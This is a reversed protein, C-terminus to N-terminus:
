SLPFKNMVWRSPLLKIVAAVQRSTSVTVRKSQGTNLITSITLVACFVLCYKHASSECNHVVDQFSVPVCVCVDIHAVGLHM